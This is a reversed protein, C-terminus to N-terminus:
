DARVTSSPDTHGSTGFIVGDTLGVQRGSPSSTRGLAGIPLSPAVVDEAGRYAARKVRFIVKSTLNGVRLAVNVTQSRWGHSLHSM